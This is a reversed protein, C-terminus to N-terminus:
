ILGTKHTNTGEQRLAPSGSTPRGSWLYKDVGRSIETFVDATDQDGLADTQDIARRVGTGYAALASSLAEVHHREETLALLYANLGTRTTADQITGEATGGLQVVREVLLDM